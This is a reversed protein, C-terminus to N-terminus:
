QTPPAPPADNAQLTLYPLQRFGVGRSQSEVFVMYVGSEPATLTLEYVGEGVSQAFERKQWVGPALFFLV